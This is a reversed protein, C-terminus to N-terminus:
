PHTRVSSVQKITTATGMDSSEVRVEDGVKFTCQGVRFGSGRAVDENARPDTSGVTAQMSSPDSSPPALAHQELDQRDREQAQHPTKAKDGSRQQMYPTPPVEERERIGVQGSSVGATSSSCVTNTDPTVRVRMHQGRDGAITYEDGHIKTISGIITEPGALIPSSSKDLGIGQQGVQQSSEGKTVGPNKNDDRAVVTGAQILLCGLGLITCFTILTRPRQKLLLTDQAKLDM